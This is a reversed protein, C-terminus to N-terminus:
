RHDYTSSNAITQRMIIIEHMDPTSIDPIGGSTGPLNVNPIPFLLRKKKEFGQMEATKNYKLREDDTGQHHHNISCPPRSITEAFMDDQCVVVWPLTRDAVEGIDSSYPIHILSQINISDNFFRAIILTKDNALFVPTVLKM